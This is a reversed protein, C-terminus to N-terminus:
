FQVVPAVDAGERAEFNVKREFGFIGALINSPFRRINTNYVRVVENYKQREVTIRNETGELQAQLELFNQNAKLDPYREVVVMLRGLAQSLEGQVQQFNAMQAQTMNTPDITTQTAKARANVVGELTEREHSAYGQVTAVLNPILDARRQYVNEVQSWATTVQEEQGVMRNYGNKAWMFTILIVGLVVLLAIIGKSM